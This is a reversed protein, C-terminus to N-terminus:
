FSCFGYRVKSAERLRAISDVAISKHLPKSQLEHFAGSFLLCGIVVAGPSSHYWASSLCLVLLTGRVRRADQKVNIKSAGSKKNFYLFRLRYLFKVQVSEFHRYLVHMACIISLPAKRNIEASKVNIGVVIVISTHLGEEGAM